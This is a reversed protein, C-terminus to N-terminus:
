RSVEEPFSLLPSGQARLVLVPCEARHLVKEINGGGRATMVILDHGLEAIRDGLRGHRYATDVRAGYSRLERARDELYALHSQDLDTRVEDAWTSPIETSSFTPNPFDLVRLLTMEGSDLGSLTYAPALSRESTPLGDLPLLIKRYRPYEGHNAARIRKEVEAQTVGPERVVMVACPAQRVLRDAVSGKLWREIGSRDRTGMVILDPQVFEAERLLEQAPNGYLLRTSAGLRRGMTSLSESEATAPETAPACVTALVLEAQFRAMLGIAHPLAAAAAPTGDLPVLITKM